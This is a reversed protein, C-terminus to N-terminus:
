GSDPGGSSTCGTQIPSYRWTVSAGQMALQYRLQALEIELLNIRAELYARNVQQYTASVTYQKSDM